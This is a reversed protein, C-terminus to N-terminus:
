KQTFDEGASRVAGKHRQVNLFLLPWKSNQLWHSENARINYFKFDLWNWDQTELEKNIRAFGFLKVFVSDFSHTHPVVFTDAPLYWFELAWSGVALQLGRCARWRTTRLIGM